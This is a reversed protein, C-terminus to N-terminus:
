GLLKGVEHIIAMWVGTLIMAIVVARLIGVVLWEQPLGDAMEEDPIPATM